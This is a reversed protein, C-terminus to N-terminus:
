LGDDRPEKATTLILQGAPESSMLLPEAFDAGVTLMYSSLDPHVAAHVFLFVFAVGTIIGYYAGSPETLAGYAFGGSLASFILASAAFAARLWRPFRMLGVLLVLAVIGNVGAWAGVPAVSALKWAGVSHRASGGLAFDLAIGAHLMVGLSAMVFLWPNSDRLCNWVNKKM